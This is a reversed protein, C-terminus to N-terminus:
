FGYVNGGDDIKEIIKLYKNVDDLINDIAYKFNSLINLSMCYISNLKNNILNDEIGNSNIYKLVHLYEIMIKELISAYEQICNIVYSFETEDIITDTMNKEKYNLKQKYIFYIIRM